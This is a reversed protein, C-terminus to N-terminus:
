PTCLTFLTVPNPELPLPARVHLTHHFSSAAAKAAAYTAQGPSWIKAAMSSILVIQGKGKELMSPLVAKTLAIPAYANLKFIADDVTAATDEVRGRQSSGAVHM